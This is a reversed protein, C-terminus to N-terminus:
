QSFSEPWFETQNLPTLQDPSFLLVEQAEQQLKQEALEQPTLLQQSPAPPQAPQQQQQQPAPPPAPLLLPPPPFSPLRTRAERTSAYRGGADNIGGRQQEHVYNSDRRDYPVHKRNIYEPELSNPKFKYRNKCDQLYEEEQIIYQLMPADVEFTPQLTYKRYMRHSTTSDQPPNMPRSYYQIPLQNQRVCLIQLDTPARAKHIAEYQGEISQKVKEYVEPDILMNPPIYHGQPRSWTDLLRNHTFGYQELNEEPYLRLFERWTIILPLTEILEDPMLVDRYEKGKYTFTYPNM